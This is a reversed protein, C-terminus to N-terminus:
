ILVPLLTHLKIAGKTTKYKAWDFLNLYLSITSLELLFMKSKIKFKTQKFMTQQGLQHLLKYYYERFSTGDRNKNQYSITSKSPSM